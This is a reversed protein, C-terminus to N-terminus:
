RSQRSPPRREAALRPAEELLAEVRTLRAAVTRMEAVEQRLAALEAQQKQLENLLLSSLVHYRVTEPKGEAGCVVLEPFVEAVEEAILGFQIPKEGDAFDTKYTFRVPRLLRLRDSAEALDRIDEKYRRSSSLTGLQGAPDIMVPSADFGLTM